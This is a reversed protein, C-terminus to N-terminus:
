LALRFGFTSYGYTPTYYGRYAARCHLADYNWGGGRFVRYSGTAAGIPNELVGKTVTPYDDYWDSCWEWVNGSMDHIGLENATKQGVPHTKSGSNENYWAVEGITNSGAYLYDRSNAGGRAAYEWEAETPLRYNKGTKDNLKKLFDQIDNWSVSEVPCQDCGKFNLEPPDSGMVARWQAQTVEYKSISFNNVKVEHPPKQDDECNGDRKELCGMTFTGGRVLVMDPEIAPLPELAITAQNEEVRLSTTRNQYGDAAANVELLSNKFEGPVELRFGGITRTARGIINGNLARVVASNLPEGTQADTILVNWVFPETIVSDPEVCVRQMALKFSYGVTLTRARTTDPLQQYLAYGRTFNDCSQAALSDAVIQLSRYKNRANSFGINNSQQQLPANAARESLTQISDQLPRWQNHLKAGANYFYIAINHKSQLSDIPDAERILTSKIQLGGVLTVPFIDPLSKQQAITDRYHVEQLILYDKGSELCVLQEKYEVQEGECTGFNPQYMWGAVVMVVWIPLAWMWDKWGLLPNGENFFARKWQESLIFDLSSSQREQVYRLSVVDPELGAALYRNLQTRLKRRRPRHATFLLENTLANVDYDEYAISETPPKQVEELLRHLSERIRSELGAQALYAILDERAADPFHGEVFWPLRTLHLLNEVTLLPADETSLERGLYLTVDWHLTPYVACAAIWQVLPEPYHKQLTALLSGELEIPPWHVDELKTMLESPQRPDASGFEELTTTFSEMSAPMFYFLDGLAAEKRGWQSLPKPSFLARERWETFIATWKALRGSMPSLLDYGNGMMLLRADGFRHQLEKISVGDPYAENFCTRPDSNYYFREITVENARFSEYLHNFLLARHDTHSHREILLLYEPPSTSQKYQFAIRGASRVTANVTRPVDLRFAEGRRRRRLQNLLIGVNEGLNVDEPQNLKINWIYPPKDQSAMAAILRRRKKTRWQVIALLLAGLLLSLALKILWGYTRYFEARAELKADIQLSSIDRPYPIPLTDLEAIDTTDMLSESVPKSYQAIFHLRHQSSDQRLALVIITDQLRDPFSDQTIFTLCTNSDPKELIITGLIASTDKTQGNEFTLSIISDEAIPMPLHHTANPTVPFPHYTVTPLIAKPTVPQNLYIILILISLALAGVLIWVANRWRNEQKKEKGIIPITDTAEMAQEFLEYFRAQDQRTTAFLPALVTKLSALPLEEPLKSLLVQLQLHRGTGVDYGDAALADLLHTLFRYKAYNLMKLTTSIKHSEGKFLFLKFKRQILDM